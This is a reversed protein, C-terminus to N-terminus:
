YSVERGFCLITGYYDLCKFKRSILREENLKTDCWLLSQNNKADIDFGCVKLALRTKWEWIFCVVILIKKIERSGAFLPCLLSPSSWTESAPAHIEHIEPAIKRQWQLHQEAKQATKYKRKQTEIKQITIKNTNYPNQSNNEGHTV